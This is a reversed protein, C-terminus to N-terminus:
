PMGQGGRAAGQPCLSIAETLSRGQQVEAVAQATHILLQWLPLSQGSSPTKPPSPERM